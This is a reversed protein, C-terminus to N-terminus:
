YLPYYANAKSDFRVFWRGSMGVYSIPRSLFIFHHRTCLLKGCTSDQSQPLCISCFKVLLSDGQCRLLPSSLNKSWGKKQLSKATDDLLLPLPLLM